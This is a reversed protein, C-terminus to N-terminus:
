DTLELGTTIDCIPVYFTEKDGAFEIEVKARKFNDDIELIVANTYSGIHPVQVADGVQYDAHKIAVCDKKDLITVVNGWGLALVKDNTVNLIQYQEYLESFDPNKYIIMQGQQWPDNLVYFKDQEITEIDPEGDEYAADIYAIQPNQSDDANVVIARNLDTGNEYWYIVVDGVQATQGKPVPVILANPVDQGEIKSSKDGIEDVTTHNFLLTLNKLDDNDKLADAIDDQYPSFVYQGQTANLPTESFDKLFDFVTVEDTKTDNTNNNKDNGGCGVALLLVVSVLIGLTFTIKKM